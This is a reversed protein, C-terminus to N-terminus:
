LDPMMWFPNDDLRLHKLEPFSGLKVILEDPTEFEIRNSSLVLKVLSPQDFGGVDRIQNSNLNLEQLLPTEL